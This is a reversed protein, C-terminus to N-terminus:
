RLIVIEVNGGMGFNGRLAAISSASPEAHGQVTNREFGARALKPVTLGLPIVFGFGAEDVESEILVVGVHLGSACIMVVAQWNAQHFVQAAIRVLHKEHA